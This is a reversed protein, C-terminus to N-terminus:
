EQGGELVEWGRPGYLKDLQDPGLREEDNRCDGLFGIRHYAGCTGCEYVPVPRGESYSLLQKYEESEQIPRLIRVGEIAEHCQYCTPEYEWESDAFIAGHTQECDKPEPCCRICFTSASEPPACGLVTYSKM